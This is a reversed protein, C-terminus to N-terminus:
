AILDLKSGDSAAKHPLKFNNGLSTQNKIEPLLAYHWDLIKIGLHSLSQELTNIEDGMFSKVDVKENQFGIEAGDKTLTAQVKVRGIHEAFSEINLVVPKQVDAPGRGKLNYRMQLRKYEGGQWTLGTYVDGPSEKSLQQDSLVAELVFKQLKGDGSLKGETDLQEMLQYLQPLNFQSQGGASLAESGKPTLQFATTGNIVVERKDQVKSDVQSSSTDPAVPELWSFLQNQVYPMKIFRSWIQAQEAGLQTDQKFNLFINLLGEVQQAFQTSPRLSAASVGEGPSGIIDAFVPPLSQNGVQKVENQLQAAKSTHLEQDSALIGSKILLDGFDIVSQNFYPEGSLGEFVSYAISYAPHYAINGASLIAGLGRGAQQNPGAPILTIEQGQSSPIFHLFEGAPVPKKSYINIEGQLSEVIINFLGSVPGPVTLGSQLSAATNADVPLSATVKGVIVEPVPASPTPQWDVRIIDSAILSASVVSSIGAPKLVGSAEQRVNGKADHLLTLNFDLKSQSGAGVGAQSQQGSLLKVLIMGSPEIIVQVKSGVAVQPDLPVKIRGQDLQVVMEKDTHKVIIGTLKQGPKLFRDPRSSSSSDPNNEVRM